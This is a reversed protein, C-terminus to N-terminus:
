HWGNPPRAVLVGDCAISIARPLVLKDLFVTRKDFRGDGDTDELVAVDSLPTAEGKADLDLMYSRMEVVWLRGAPDFAMAVREVVLPESAVLELRFGPAVQITKIAEEPPLVPAPPIKIHPPLPPQTEGKKDGGQALAALFVLAVTMM